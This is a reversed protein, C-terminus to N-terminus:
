IIEFRVLYRYYKKNGISVISDPQFKNKRAFKNAPLNDVRTDFYVNEIHGAARFKQYCLQLASTGYGHRIESSNMFITVFYDNAHARDYTIKHIGVIGIIKDDSSIGYYYDRIKDDKKEDELCYKIFKQTKEASWIRGDGVYQMVNRDTVIEFLDDIHKKTIKVLQM